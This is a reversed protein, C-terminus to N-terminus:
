KKNRKAVEAKWDDHIAHHKQWKSLDTKEMNRLVVQVPPSRRKTYFHGTQYGRVTTTPGPNPELERGGPMPSSVESLSKKFDNKIDQPTKKQRPTPPSKMFDVTDARHTARHQFFEASNMGKSYEHSNAKAKLVGKASALSRGKLVNGEEIQKGLLELVDRRAAIKELFKNSM